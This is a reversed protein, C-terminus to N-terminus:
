AVLQIAFYVNERSSDSGNIKFRLRLKEPLQRMRAALLHRPLYRYAELYSRHNAGRTKRLLTKLKAFLQEIPNLDPSWEMRDTFRILQASRM